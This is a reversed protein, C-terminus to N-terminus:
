PRPESPCERFTAGPSTATSLEPVTSYLPASITGTFDVESVNASFFTAATANVSAMDAGALNAGNMRVAYMDAGVLNARGLDAGTLNAGPGVLFGSGAVRWNTPLVTGVTDTRGSSVAGM